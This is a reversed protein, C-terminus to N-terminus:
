KVLTFQKTTSNWRAKGKSTSYVQNNTLEKEEKPLPKAANFEAAGPKKQNETYGFFTGADKQEGYARQVAETNKLGPNDRQIELAREAIDDAFLKAESPEMDAWDTTLLNLAVRRDTAASPKSGPSTVGAKELKKTRAKAEETQARFLDEQVQWRKAEEARIQNVSELRDKQIGAMVREHATQAQDNVQAALQPSFPTNAYPSPQQFMVSWAKNASDWSAQDTASGFLQGAAKAQNLAITMRREREMAQASLTQARNERIQSAEKAFAGAKDPMGASIAVRAFNDMADAPDNTPQNAAAAAFKRRAELDLQTIRNKLQIETQKDPQAAVEGLTLQTQANELGVRADSEQRSRVGSAIGFLDDAM